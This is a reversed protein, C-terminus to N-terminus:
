PEKKKKKKQGTVTSKNRKFMSDTKTFFTRCPTLNKTKVIEHSITM